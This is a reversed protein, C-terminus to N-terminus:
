LNSVCPRRTQPDSEKIGFLFCGFTPTRLDIAEGTIDIFPQMASGEVLSLGLWTAGGLHLYPRRSMPLTARIRVEAHALVRLDCRKELFRPEHDVGRANVGNRRSWSDSDGGCPPSRSRTVM